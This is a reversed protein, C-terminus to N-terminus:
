AALQQTFALLEAIEQETFLREVAFEGFASFDGEYLDALNLYRRRILVSQVVRLFRIQDPNYTHQQIHQDFCTQVVTGYEPVAELALAHRLFGLFSHPKFGYAKRINDTTLQVDQTSLTERLTRELAILDLDSVEQGKQIAQITPHQEALETIRQEVRAKYESVYIREGGESLTIYGSAAIFDPLDLKRFASDTERRNKMQPALTQIVQTLQTPAATMLAESTCLDAMPKMKPDNRVFDPLRSVDEAISLLTNPDPKGKLTQWKLREVKSTFTEAAVDVGAALRLLPGVQVKLFDLQAPTLVNWFDDTWAQEINPLVRRVTFADRPIREIQARLDAKVQQADPDSQSHLFHEAIKLRTNFVTVLVPVVAKVTEEAQRDFENQWFDIIKFETKRGDPLRDTFSCTEHNRTGRGIMQWLKIQSQVQKMFVLNVVEPVDIGTDLMDVSIAIRPLDYKKFKTILGDGYTGDRVRETDSTIVEVMNVYQPYMEEFVLRLRQAHAQTMAFVITKGPLTGSHDKFCVEMFEEWQKRLTDTNSVTKEIETGSYDLEDPDIGQEILANQEEESLNVGVIGDRQFGTKAQYLSFNVLYGEAVAENFTYLSTPTKDECHFVRFTDRDIFGAPTATLGIMRADFYEMVETFRNFISRHAEDFVILDFFGPSFKDYCRSLTQLTSVYLRKTTDINHTYIRDNTEHPLHKRFGEKLAQDVLAERDAVFLVKRAQNTRLFLDILAVTTRTKGTGTAMVLLSRRKGNTFAACLRRIAEQQYARGAIQADILSDSLPTANLRIYLLRELDEPMFFGAVLRPSATGVEWFYIDVGNTLYAFPQFTQGPLKAIETVYHRVQERAVNPDRIQKKAEVVAIVEGNSRYLCYDTVGNWPEKDYGDVPIEIGVQASNKVDWGAKLLAPDIRDKRTQAENPSM